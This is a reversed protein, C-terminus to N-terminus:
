LDTCRNAMALKDLSTIVVSVETPFVVELSVAHDAAAKSDFEAPEDPKRMDEMRAQSPVNFQLSQLEDKMAEIEIRRLNETLKVFHPRERVARWCMKMIKYILLPCNDPCPLRAGQCIDAWVTRDPIDGYPIMGRSWIEYMVVGFSWVDSAESYLQEKLVEIAAWRVSNIGSRSRYYDKGGLVRSLGYDCIKAHRESSVLVNRAALDRHVIGKSHLYAMGHATDAALRAQMSGRLRESRCLRSLSGFECYEVIVMIPDGKTIVGILGVINPHSLGAMVMAEQLLLTKQKMDGESDHLSKVAVIKGSTIADAKLTAKYVKGFAGRGVIGITNIWHRPIEKVSDETQAKKSIDRDIQLISLHSQGLVQIFLYPAMEKLEEYTQAIVLPARIIQRPDELIFESLEGM